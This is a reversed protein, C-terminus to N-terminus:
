KSRVRERALALHIVNFVESQLFKIAVNLRTHIVFLM